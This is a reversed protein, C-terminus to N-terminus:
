WYPLYGGPGAALVPASPLSSTSIHDDTSVMTIAGDGLFSPKDVTERRTDGGEFFRRACVDGLTFCLDTRPPNDRRDRHASIHTVPPPPDSSPCIM